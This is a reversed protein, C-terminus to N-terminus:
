HDDGVEKNTTVETVATSLCGGHSNTWYQFRRGVEPPAAFAVKEAHITPMDAGSYVHIIPIDCERTIYQEGEAGFVRYQAGSKTKFSGTWPDTM